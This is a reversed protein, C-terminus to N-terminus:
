NTLEESLKEGPKPRILVFLVSASCFSVLAVPLFSLCLNMIFISNDTMIHRINQVGVSYLWAGIIGINRIMVGGRRKLRLYTIPHVVALYRDVCTLCHICMAGMVGINYLDRGIRMAVSKQDKVSFMGINSGITTLIEMTIITFTFVDAHSLPSQQAKMRKYGEYLVYLFIPAFVLYFIAWVTVMVEIVMYQCIKETINSSLNVAMDKGTIPHVVALYRDVCTLCHICMGGTVGIHYLDRGIGLLVSKQDKLSFMGINSGITILIEM